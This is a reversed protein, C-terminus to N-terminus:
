VRRTTIVSTLTLIVSTHTSFCVRRTFNCQMYLDIKHTNLDCEQVNSYCELTYFDCKHPDYECAYTDLKHLFCVRRTFDCDAHSLRVRRISVLRPRTIIVSTRTSILSKTYLDCDLPDFNCEHTVIV